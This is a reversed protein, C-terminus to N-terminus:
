FFVNGKQPSNTPNKELYYCHNLSVWHFNTQFLLYASQYDKMHNQHPNQLLLLHKNSFLSAQNLGFLNFANFSRARKM